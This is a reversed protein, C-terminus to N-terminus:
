ISETAQLTAKMVGNWSYGIPVGPIVVGLTFVGHVSIDIAKNTSDHYNAVWSQGPNQKWTLAIALNSPWSIVDCINTIQGHAETYIVGLNYDVDLPHPFVSTPACVTLVKYTKASAQATASSASTSQNLTQLFLKFDEAFNFPLSERSVQQQLEQMEQPVAMPADVAFCPAVIASLFAMLAITGCFRKSIKM